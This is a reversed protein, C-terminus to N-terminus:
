LSTNLVWVTWLLFLSVSSEFGTSEELKWWLGVVDKWETGEEGDTLMEWATEAWKAGGKASGRTLGNSAKKGRARATPATVVREMGEDDSSAGSDDDSGIDGEWDEEEGRAKKAKSKRGDGGASPRKMGVFMAVSGLGLENQLARNRALSNERTLDLSPM